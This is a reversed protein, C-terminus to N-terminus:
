DGVLVAIEMEQRLKPIAEEDDPQVEKMRANIDRVHCEKEHYYGGPDFKIVLGCWKCTREAM